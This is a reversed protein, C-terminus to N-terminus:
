PVPRVTQILARTERLIDAPGTTTTGAEISMGNTNTIRIRFDDNGVIPVTRDLSGIGPMKVHTTKCGTLTAVTALSLFLIGAFVALTDTRLMKRRKVLHTVGMKVVLADLRRENAESKRWSLYAFGAAITDPVHNTVADLPNTAM